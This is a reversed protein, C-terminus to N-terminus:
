EMAGLKLQLVEVVQELLEFSDRQETHISQLRQTLASNGGFRGRGGVQVQGHSGRALIANGARHDLYTLASGFIRDGHEGHNKPAGGCHGDLPECREESVQHDDSQGHGFGNGHQEMMMDTDVNDIDHGFREGPMQRMSDSGFREQMMSSMSDDGFRHSEQDFSEIRTDMRTNGQMPSQMGARGGHHAQQMQEIMAARGMPQMSMRNAMTGATYHLRDIGRDSGLFAGGGLLEPLAERLVIGQNISLLDRAEDLSAKVSEHLAEALAGQEERFTSLLEDLEEGKGNFKIMVDEFEARFADVTEREELLDSLLDQLAEMQEESLELRNVLVLIPLNVGDSSEGRSGSLIQTSAPIVAIMGVVIVMSLIRSLKKM